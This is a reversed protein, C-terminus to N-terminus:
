TTMCLSWIAGEQTDKFTFGYYAKTGHLTGDQLEKGYSTCNLQCSEECKLMAAKALPSRM